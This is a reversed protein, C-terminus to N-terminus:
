VTFKQYKQYYSRWSFQPSYLFSSIKWLNSIMKWKSLKSGAGPRGAGSNSTFTSFITINKNLYFEKNSLIIFLLIKKLDLDRFALKIKGTPEKLGWFQDQLAPWTCFLLDIKLIGKHIYLYLHWSELEWM